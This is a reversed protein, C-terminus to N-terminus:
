IIKKTHRKVVARDNQRSNGVFHLDHFENYIEKVLQPTGYAALGMVVYEDELPKLDLYKTTFSYFYGVSRPVLEKELLNFNSDYIGMCQQEGAGDVTLIVTDDKSTWPRTYYGLAAHSVHHNVFVDAVISAPISPNPYAWKGNSSISEITRHGHDEYFSVHDDKKIMDM